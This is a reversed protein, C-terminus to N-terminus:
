RFYHTRVGYVVALGFLWLLSEGEFRLANVLSYTRTARNVGPLLSPWWRRVRQCYRLYSPGIQLALAKDNAISLLSMYAMALGVSLPVYWLPLGLVLGGGLYGLVAGLEVPNRVYRYPGNLVFGETRHFGRAWLRVALAAAFAPAAAALRLLPAGWADAVPAALFLLLVAWGFQRSLKRAKSAFGMLGTTPVLVDRIGEGGTTGGFLATGQAGSPGTTLNGEEM